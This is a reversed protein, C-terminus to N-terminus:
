TFNYKKITNFATILLYFFMLLFGAGLFKLIYNQSMIAILSICIFFPSCILGGWLNHKAKELKDAKYYPVMKGIWFMIGLFIFYLGGNILITPGVIKATSPDVYRAMLEDSDFFFLFVLCFIGIAISSLSILPYNKM